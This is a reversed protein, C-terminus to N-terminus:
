LRAQAIMKIVHESPKASTKSSGHTSNEDNSCPCRFDHQQFSWAAPPLLVFTGQSNLTRPVQAVIFLLYTM